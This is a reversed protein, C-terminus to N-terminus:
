KSGFSIEPPNSPGREKALPNTGYKTGITPGLKKIPANGSKTVKPDPM